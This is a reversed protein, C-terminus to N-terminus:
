TEKEGGHHYIVKDLAFIRGSFKGAPVSQFTERYIEMRSDMLDILSLLESEACIPRVAAGFEPEGHHSLLMHQLLATKEEPLGLTRGIEGVEQAGMTLHGLLKGRVSYDTVLGVESFTFEEIKAFDHLLTGALLLDRDVTDAYLSALFDATKLMNGTHMLLGSLFSHHFSKAAPIECFREKHRRLMELCVAQYDTDQLSEVTAEIEQYAADRDIPAVPVLLSLDYHDQAQALRIRDVSMQATGRYEGVTGRVKVVKGEEAASIPGGYDWVKADMAGSVDSIVANLYPRGNSAIKSVATKLIYFGEVTDGVSMENIRKDYEM